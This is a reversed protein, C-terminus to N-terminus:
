SAATDATSTPADQTDRSGFQTSAQQALPYVVLSFYRWWAYALITDNRIFSTLIGHAIDNRLNPGIPDLLLMRLENCVDSPLISNSDALSLLDGLSKEMECLNSDISITNIGRNKLITRIARELQPLAIHLAMLFDLQFGHYLARAAIDATGDPVFPSLQCIWNFISPHYQHEDRIEKLAPLIATLSKVSCQTTLMQMTEHNIARQMGPDAGDFSKLSYSGLRRGDPGILQTAILSRIPNNCINRESQSVMEQINSTSCIMSFAFLADMPPLNSVREINAQIIRQTLGDRDEFIATHEMMGDASIESASRLIDRAEEIFQQTRTGTRHKSPITRLLALAKNGYEIAMHAGGHGVRVMREAQRLIAEAHGALAQYHETPRRDRTCWKTAADFLTSADFYSERTMLSNALHMLHAFAEPTYDPSKVASSLTYSISAAVHGDETTASMLADRFLSQVMMSKDTAISGLQISLRLIREAVLRTNIDRLANASVSDLLVDIARLAHLHTPRIGYLYLVDEIRILARPDTVERAVETLASVDPQTLDSIDFSRFTHSFYNPNYPHQTDGAVLKLSLVQSVLVLHGKRTDTPELEVLATHLALSLKDYDYTDPQTALVKDIFSGPSVSSESASM